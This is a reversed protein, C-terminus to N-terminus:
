KRTSIFTISHSIYWLLSVMNDNASPSHLHLILKQLRKSPLSNSIGGFEQGWPRCVRCWSGAHENRWNSLWKDRKNSMKWGKWIHLFELQYWHWLTETSTPKFLFVMNHHVCICFCSGYDRQSQYWWVRPKCVRGSAHEYKHLLWKNWSGIRGM